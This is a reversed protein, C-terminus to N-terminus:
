ALASHGTRRERIPYRSTAGANQLADLGREDNGSFDGALCGLEAAQRLCTGLARIGSPNCVTAPPRKPSKAFRGGSVLELHEHVRSPHWFSSTRLIM